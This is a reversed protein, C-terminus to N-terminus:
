PIGARKNSKRIWVMTSVKFIPRYRREVDDEFATQWTKFLQHEPLSVKEAVGLLSPWQKTLVNLKKNLDGFKTTFTIDGGRSSGKRYAYQQYNDQNVNASDIHKYRITDGAKVFVAVAMTCVKGPALEETYLQYPRSDEQKGLAFEGIERIARDQM